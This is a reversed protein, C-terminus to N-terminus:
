QTQLLWFLFHKKLWFVAPTAGFISFIATKNRLPNESEDFKYCSAIHLSGTDSSVFCDCFDILSSFTDIPLTKNLLVIHQKNHLLNYIKEQLNKQSFSTGLIISVNKFNSLQELIRLQLEIPVLTYLHQM